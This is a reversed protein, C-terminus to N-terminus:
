RSRCTVETGLRPNGGVQGDWIWEAGYRNIDTLLLRMAADFSTNGEFDDHLRLGVRVYNPGWSNPRATFTSNPRPQGGTADIDTLRYDLLELRGQGYQRAMRWACSTWTSRSALWTASCKMPARTFDTSAADARVARVQISEPERRRAAVYQAYQEPSVALPALADRVAAVADAGADIIGGLETFNYASADALQPTVLVDGATLTALQRVSERRLLIVLMQNTVNGVSELGERPSLHLGM